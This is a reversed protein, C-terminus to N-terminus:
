KREVYYEMFHPAWSFADKLERIAARIGAEDYLFFPTPFQGAAQEFVSDPLQFNPMLICGKHTIYKNYVFKRLICHFHTPLVFLSRPVIM